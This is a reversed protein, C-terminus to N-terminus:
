TTRERAAQVRGGGRQFQNIERTLRSVEAAGIYGEKHADKIAQRALGIRGTANLVDLVTRAVTTVPLGEHVIVDALPLDQRHILISKPRRRRLRAGKPFTIHIRSPNADSIGYVALATEHSLAVNDPGHSARAWLVSERYQSLRNSPYYPIRYVGRSVRELKGRGTMRSLVSDVIGIARAQDATVLGDNEEALALLENFRSRPMYATHM